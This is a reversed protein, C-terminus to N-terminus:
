RHLALVAESARPCEHLLRVARDDELRRRLQDFRRRASGVDYAVLLLGSRGTRDEAVHRTQAFHQMAVRQAAAWLGILPDGPRRGPPSQRRRSTGAMTPGM